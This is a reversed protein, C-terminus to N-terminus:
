NQKDEGLVSISFETVTLDLESMSLIRLYSFFYIALIILFIIFDPALTTNIYFDIRRSETLSSERWKRALFFIKTTLSTSLSSTGNIQLVRPHVGIACISPNFFSFNPYASKTSCSIYDSPLLTKFTM